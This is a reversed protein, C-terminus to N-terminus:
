AHRADDDPHLAVEFLRSSSSLLDRCKKPALAMNYKIDQLTTKCEKQLPTFTEEYKPRNTRRAFYPISQDELAIASSGLISTIPGHSPTDLPAPSLENERWSWSHPLSIGLHAILDAAQSELALWTSYNTLNLMQDTHKHLHVTPVIPGTRFASSTTDTSHGGVTSIPLGTIVPLSLLVTVLSKM